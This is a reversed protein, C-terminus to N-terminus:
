KQKNTDKNAIWQNTSARAELSSGDLIYTSHWHSAFFTERWIQQAVQCCLSLPADMRHSRTIRTFACSTLLIWCLQCFRPGITKRLHHAIDGLKTMHIVIILYFFCTVYCFCYLCICIFYICHLFMAILRTKSLPCLYKRRGPTHSTAPPHLWSPWAVRLPLKATRM